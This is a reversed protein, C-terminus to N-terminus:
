RVRLIEGKVEEGITLIGFSNRAQGPNFFLIGHIVKNMPQHSHGFVIINVDSFLSGIRDEIGHPAGWGHAVGIRKGGVTLLQREPLSRKLENSDMNGCVACVERLQRLGDLVDKTTFDGAHIIMDVEALTSLIKDPLEAFSSFHTDSLVGIRM